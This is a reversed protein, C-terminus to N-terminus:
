LTSPSSTVIVSRWPTLKEFPSGKLASAAAFFMLRPTSSPM